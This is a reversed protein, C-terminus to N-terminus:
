GVAPLNAAGRGALGRADARSSGYSRCDAYLGANEVTEAARHGSLEVEFGEAALHVHEVGLQDEALEDPLPILRGPIAVGGVDHDVVGAAHPLMGLLLHPAAEPLQPRRLR